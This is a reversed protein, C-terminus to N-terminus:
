AKKRRFAMLSALGGLGALALTTPEPVAAVTFPAYGVATSMDPHSPSPDTVPTMQFIASQGVLTGPAYTGVTATNFVDWQFNVAGSTWGPISLLVGAQYGSGDGSGGDSGYFAELSSPLATLPNGVTVAGIAYYFEGSFESGITLGADGAPVASAAYVIPSGIFGSDGTYNGVQIGQGFAATSLAGAGIIGLLLSKKM